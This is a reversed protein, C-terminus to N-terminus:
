ASAQGRGAGQSPNRGAHPEQEDEEEDVAESRPETFDGLRRHKEGDLPVEGVGIVVATVQAVLPTLVAAAGCAM